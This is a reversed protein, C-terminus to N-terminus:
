TEQPFPRDRLGLAGRRIGSAVFQGLIIWHVGPYFGFAVLPFVLSDVAAGGLNSGNARVSFKRKRLSQYIM